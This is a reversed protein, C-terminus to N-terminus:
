PVVEETFFSIPKAITQCNHQKMAKMMHQRTEEISGRDSPNDIQYNLRAQCFYCTLQVKIKM